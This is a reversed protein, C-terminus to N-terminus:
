SAPELSRGSPSAGSSSARMWVPWSRLPWGITARCGASPCPTVSENSETSNCESQRRNCAATFFLALVVNMAPGAISTIMMDRVPSRLNSAVVPVPKAAGFFFGSHPNVFLFYAPLALTFIPHIHPFPNLTLRGLERATPDGLEDATWAHGYEHFSLSLMLVVFAVISSVTEQEMPVRPLPLLPAALMWAAPAMLM